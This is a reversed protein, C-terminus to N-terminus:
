KYLNLGLIDSLEEESVAGEIDIKNGLILFPTSQLEEMDLLQRLEHAALELRERDTTDILYVVADVFGLYDTWIKRALEHGGLDFAQFQINGLSLNDSQPHKTKDMQVFRGYKMMQLLTSKGANDLGLFVLKASKNYLGLKGLIDFFWRYLFSM